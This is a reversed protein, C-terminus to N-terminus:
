TGQRAAMEAKHFPTPILFVRNIVIPVSIRAIRKDNKVLATKL